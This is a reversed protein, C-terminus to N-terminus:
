GTPLAAEANRRQIADSRVQILTLDLLPTPVGLLRARRALDGLIHEAETPNGAILDRYLSTTFASGPQTLLTVSQAHGSASVPHGAADAVAELESITELIRPLGGAEITAGVPGRFLCTVVGAAAIFVWKEWMAGAVDDSVTVDIGPVRLADAVATPLAAATWPGVTLTTLETMQRVTGEDLTAVIKALGGVTQGPFAEELRDMHAMGNLVPLIVTDKGVYPRVDEIAAPLASAKVTVIVLDFAEAAEGTTLVQVQHTRDGSPSVFRLGERRLREARHARVLYTVDRGDEHLLSGFAGGTAGAGVMLIRM